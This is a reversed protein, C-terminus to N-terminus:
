TLHYSTASSSENLIKKRARFRRVKWLNACKNNTCWRKTRSKSEDYFIGRCNPNECIKLRKSDHNVLLDAFSAAIEAMVWRWDRALPVIELEFKEGAWALRRVSPANLLIANLANLDDSSPNGAPLSGVIRRMLTRLGVLADVVAPSVPDAMQLNWRNLFEELWAPQLLRDERWRGRFDGWESNLFDLCLRDMSPTQIDSSVPIESVIYFICRQGM